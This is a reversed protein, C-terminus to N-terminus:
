SSGGGEDYGNHLGNPLFPALIPAIERLIRPHMSEIDLAAPDAGPTCVSKLFKEQAVGAELAVTYPVRSFSVLSYKSIYERPFRVQLRKELAKENLFQRDGVRDRMEVFNEVAMDAIADSNRWRAESVGGFLTSWDSDERGQMADLRSFFEACDEFGCNMGQGFFPVIAHAADGLVLARSDWSWPNAKVTVMHGTPNGFFSGELDEILPLADAFHKGFFAHLDAPTKLAEFSVPGEYPLFLTLTFSGDFNPLAILMFNGRPWIHLAHKEMRFRSDGSAGPAAAIALEKYGYDLPRESCRGGAAGVIASRLVSASGDTGIVRRRGIRSATGTSEDVCELELGSGEARAEVLRQHFRIAVRGTEEAADLLSKNLEGRSISYICQWDEVGYPQFTLAGDVGHMMRGRMAIAESLIRRDLGLGRLAHVGRVSLALNISRGGYVSRTRPDSRRELLEVDFGRRALGTALLSGVLGGGVLTISRSRDGGSM